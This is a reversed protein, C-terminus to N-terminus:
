ERLSVDLLKPELQLERGCNECNKILVLGKGELESLSIDRILFTTPKLCNPCDVTATEIGLEVKFMRILTAILPNLNGVDLNLYKYGEIFGKLEVDKTKLPLVPTGVGEAYGIEQNVWESSAGAPTLIAVLFKSDRITRKIRESLTIIGFGVSRSEIYGAINIRGLYKRLEEAIRLDEEAQSLFVTTSM